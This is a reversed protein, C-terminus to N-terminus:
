KQSFTYSVEVPTTRIERKQLKEMARGLEENFVRSSSLDTGFLHPLAMFLSASVGGARAKEPLGMSLAKSDQIDFESSSNKLYEIWSAVSYALHSMPSRFALADRLPGLFRSDIKDVGNRALRVLEDKMFASQLREIISAKYAEIDVNPVPPLTATMENMLGDIYDRIKSDRIAEHAYTYGMMRGIMGLAMHTGNLLRIKMLEFPAVDEVVLAGADQFQPIEAGAVHPKEIVLQRFAETYIPWNDQLGYDTTHRVIHVDLTKPVIRDVMTSPFSTNQAIWDRLAPSRQAAYALVVNRLVTGNGPLNDCSMVTFSPLGKKMRIELAHVILGVSTTPDDTKALDSQIDKDDFDLGGNKYYYGAQTVTLSVLKTAPATLRNIVGGLNEQAVLIEKISGIIRAKSGDCSQEVVSYLFNQPALADRVASTKLSVACIGCDTAGKRILDDAYVALHGRFFASPGIHVIGIDVNDRDYGPTEIGPFSFELAADSLPM